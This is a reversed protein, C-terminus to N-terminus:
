LLGTHIAIQLYFFRVYLFVCKYIVCAWTLGPDWLIHVRKRQGTRAGYVRRLDINQLQLVVGSVGVM